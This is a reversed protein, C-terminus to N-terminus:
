DTEETLIMVFANEVPNRYFNKRFGAVSFGLKRYLAIAGLNSERVELSVQRCGRERAMTLLSRVVAEGYGKRRLAPDVAVNLIQGEDPAWFIGGYAAVRGDSLCVVGGAAEGLLLELATVSWPESFCIRELAAVQELHEAAIPEAIPQEPKM